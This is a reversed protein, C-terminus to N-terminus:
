HVSCCATTALRPAIQAYQIHAVGRGVQPQAVVHNHQLRGAPQPDVYLICRAAKAQGKQGDRAGPVAIVRATTGTARAYRGRLVRWYRESAWRGCLAAHLGCMGAPATVAHM